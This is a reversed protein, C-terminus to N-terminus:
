KCFSASCRVAKGQTLLLSVGPEGQIAEAAEGKGACSHGAQFFRRWSSPPPHRLHKAQVSGISSPVASQREM